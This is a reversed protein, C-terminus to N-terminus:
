FALNTTSCRGLPSYKERVLLGGVKGAALAVNAAAAPSLLGQLFGFLFRASFCRVLLSLQRLVVAARGWCYYRLSPGAQESCCCGTVALLLVGYCSYVTCELSPSVTVIWWGKTAQYGPPQKCSIGM